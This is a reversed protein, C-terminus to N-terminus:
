SDDSDADTDSEPTVDAAKPARKTVAEVVKEAEAEIAEIVEEAQCNRHPVGHVPCDAV